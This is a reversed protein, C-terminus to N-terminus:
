RASSKLQRRGWLIAALVSGNEIVLYIPFAIASASWSTMVFFSTLANFLGSAHSVATESHPHTWSKKVTPLAALADSLIAFAIALVPQGTMKWLVLALVSFLGCGYDFVGLKWVANKNVFSSLFILFPCLGSTFVPLVAWTVGDSLAAVTGITPAISWLLFTVRNPQSRGALTDCIYFSAGLLNVLTGLIVIAPSIM